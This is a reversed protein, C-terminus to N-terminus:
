SAVLAPEPLSRQLWPETRSTSAAPRAGGAYTRVRQQQAPTLEPRNGHRQADLVAQLLGDSRGSRRSGFVLASLAGAQDPCLGLRSLV